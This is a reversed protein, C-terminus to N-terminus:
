SNQPQKQKNVIPKPKILPKSTVAMQIQNNTSKEQRNDRDKTKNSSKGSKKQFEHSIDNIGEKKKGGALILGEESLVLETNWFIGLQGIGTKSLPNKNIVTIKFDKNKWESEKFHNKDRIVKFVLKQDQHKQNPSNSNSEVAGLEKDKNEYFIVNGNIYFKNTDKKQINCVLQLLYPLYGYRKLFEKPRINKKNQKPKEKINTNANSNDNTSQTSQLANHFVNPLNGVYVVFSQTLGENKLLWLKQGYTLYIPVIVNKNNDDLFKLVGLNRASEVMSITGTIEGIAQYYESKAALDFKFEIKPTAQKLQNKSSDTGSKTNKLSVISLPNKNEISQNTEINKKVIQTIQPKKGSSHKSTGTKQQNKKQSRNKM